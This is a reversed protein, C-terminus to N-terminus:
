LKYFPMPVIEAEIKRGRVDVLVETGPAAHEKDLLAMAYAGNMYPLHTGSTVKGVQRDGVFVACGERAIGRGTIKLGVRTIAPEGKKALAEKGLFSPKGMKVAFELGAELPTIEESMEQGYLPMAAELRLTDRAGLGCPQLGFASGAEMLKAWLAPTNESKCYLEYGFSGTYGTRSLLCTIGGVEAKEVFSYYKQPIQDQPTLVGIIDASKPGQIAIQGISETIDEATTDGTLNGKIWDFDKARNCANGVLWYREEDLCCVLFDDIVGGENNLLPSYRVRGPRIGTFDNCFLHNISALADQGCLLLESMHSVDFIGAQQRVAMHEEIIGKYQIPLSYGAFPVMKGGLALHADYLPTKREM